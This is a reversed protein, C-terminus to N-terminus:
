MPNKMIWWKNGDEEVKVSREAAFVNVARDVGSWGVHWDDGMMIGGPRLNRWWLRIDQIVDEYDHGADIHLLDFQLKKLFFYDSALKSPAPFPIVHDKVGAHIVNSLFTYFVTPYGHHFQLDRSPDDVGNRKDWFELAGLWTDIAVIAGRSHEKLYKAMPITSGGKWVGVEAIFQASVNNALRHYLDPRVGWSGMDYPRAHLGYVDPSANFFLSRMSFQCDDGGTGPPCICRSSQPLSGLPCEASSGVFAQLLVSVVLTM